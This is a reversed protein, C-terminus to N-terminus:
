PSEGVGLLQVEQDAGGGEFEEGLLDLEVPVGDRALHQFLAEEVAVPAHGQEPGLADELRRDEGFDREADRGNGDDLARGPGIFVLHAIVAEDVIAIPALVRLM